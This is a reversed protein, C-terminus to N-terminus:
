DCQGLMSFAFKRHWGWSNDEPRRLHNARPSKCDHSPVGSKKRLMNGGILMYGKWRNVHPMSTQDPMPQFGAFLSIHNKGCKRSLIM